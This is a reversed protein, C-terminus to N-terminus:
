SGAMAFLWVSWSLSHCWGALTAVGWIHVVHLRRRYLNSGLIIVPMFMVSLLALPPIVKGVHPGFNFVMITSAIFSLLLFLLLKRRESSHKVAFYILPLYLPIVLYPLQLIWSGLPLLDPLLAWLNM